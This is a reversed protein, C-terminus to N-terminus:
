LSSEVGSCNGWVKFLAEVDGLTPEVETNGKNMVSVRDDPDVHYLDFAHGLEHALVVARAQGDTVRRSLWIRPARDDYRGWYWATDEFLVPLRPAGALDELTLATGARDNWMAIAVAVSEREEATADDAPVIVLPACADFVNAFRGEEDSCAPLLALLVLATLARAITPM